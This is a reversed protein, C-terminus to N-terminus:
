GHYQCLRALIKKRGILPLLEKLEPGNKRGTIAIRLPMFLSKGRRDTQQKIAEIWNHWADKHHLDQPLLSSALKLFDQLMANQINKGDANNDGRDRGIDSDGSINKRNDRDDKANGYELEGFCVDAWQQIEGLNNVNKKAIDFFEEELNDQNRPKGIKEIKEADTASTADTANIFNTKDNAIEVQRKHIKEQIEQYLGMQQLYAKARHYPFDQLLKHNLRTIDAEDYITSARSFKTINFNEILDAMNEYANVNESTGITALFSCVAMPLIGINICDEVTSLINADKNNSRKSLKGNKSKILSSHAFIPPVYDSKGLIEAVEAFMQMQVATNSIHDEGRIIHTVGSAVDDIASPLMYTFSGFMNKNNTVEDTAGDTADSTKDRAKGDIEGYTESTDAGRIVIPDSLNATIFEQEGKIEDTFKIKGDNINRNLLFRYHPKRGQKEYSDKQESTLRLGARDYIPPKRQALQIKRKVELEQATEYCAYIIGKELMKSAIEQYLAFRSSQNFEEDWSIGLWSLHQKIKAQYSAKSRQFDTDDLRLLLKGNNKKAYLYCILATRINGIHLIGTPSPAFRTLM